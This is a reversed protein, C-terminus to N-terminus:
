GKNIEQQLKAPLKNRILLYSHNIFEKLQEDGVKSVDKIFLWKARALYPAPIFNGNQPLSNFDEDNAKFSLTLPVADMSIICFMKSKISFVLNDGWKMDETVAPFSICYERIEEINM